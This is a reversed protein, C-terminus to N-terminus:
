LMGSYDTKITLEKDFLKQYQEAFNKTKDIYDPNYLKLKDNDTHLHIVPEFISPIKKVTILQLSPSTSVM